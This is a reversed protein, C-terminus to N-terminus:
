QVDLRKFGLGTLLASVSNRANERAKDLIGQALAAQTIQDEAAQRVRSELDPDASVLLGTTRSYIRTKANDIRTSFVQAQPLRVTVSDGHVSVDSPKLQALDIGATVDGHAILLLKEGVLFNPLFATEREGEVIKDMSFAVTELRSLKRIRDLVAPASVDIRTSRGAVFRAFHSWVGDRGMRIVGALLLAGILIGVCLPGLSRRISGSEM